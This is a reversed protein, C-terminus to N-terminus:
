RRGRTIHAVVEDKDALRRTRAGLGSDIAVEAVETIRRVGDARREIHIVADIAREVRDRVAAMPLDTAGQVAMFELRRLADAPNNAHCTSLSGDHGTSLAEIMDLAEGGRVEGIILRDPRLRLAARVLDRISAEGLGEATAPRSELRLVHPARLRLEATDEITLIRENADISGAIANLLTTKGSSTAGCVVLNCRAAVLENLMDAVAPSAFGHLPVDAVRFRRIAVCPGDVALPPIIATFRSGDPLRADVIPHVRDLRLGLPSLVRQIVTTVVDARLNGVRTMSGARAIWLENGGNIMVEEVSPDTLFEELPGFGVLEAMVSRAVTTRECEGALPLLRDLEDAVQAALDDSRHGIVRRRIEGVLHETSPSPM